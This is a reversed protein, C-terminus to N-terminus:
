LRGEDHLHFIREISKEIRDQGAKLATLTAEIGSHAACPYVTKDKGNERRVRIASICVPAAAICIGAIAIGEGINLM